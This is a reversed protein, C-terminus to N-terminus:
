TKRKLPVDVEVVRIEGEAWYSYIKGDKDVWSQDADKWSDDSVDLGKGTSPFFIYEWTDITGAGEEENESQLDSLNVFHVKTVPAFALGSPHSDFLVHGAQEAIRELGRVTQGSGRLKERTVEREKKKETAKKQKLLLAFAQAEPSSNWERIAKPMVIPYLGPAGYESPVLGRRFMEKLVDYGYQGGSVSNCPDLGLSEKYSRNGFTPDFGHKERSQGRTYQTVVLNDNVDYYQDEGIVEEELM